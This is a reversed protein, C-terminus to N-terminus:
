PLQDHCACQSINKVLFQRMSRMSKAQNYLLCAIHCIPFSKLIRYEVGLLRAEHEVVAPHTEVLGIKGCHAILYGGGEVPHVPEVGALDYVDVLLAHDTVVPQAVGGLRGCGLQLGLYVATEGAYLRKGRGHM